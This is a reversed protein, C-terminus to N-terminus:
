SGLSGRFRFDPALMEEAAAFDRRDWIDSYFREVLHKM